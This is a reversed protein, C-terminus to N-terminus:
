GNQQLIHEAVRIGSQFAGEMYGVFAYCTHEGAFHLNRVGARLPPGLTTIQGPAPFSYGGLTWPDANWNQFDTKRLADRYGPQLTELASQYITNRAQDTETNSLKISAPGSTFAVLCETPDETSQGETGCWTYGIVDNSMGNPRRKSNEWFRNSMASFYKVAHGMQLPSDKPLPKLVEPMQEPFTINQWTSPPVTLVVDDASYTKGSADTVVMGSDRQQIKTIPTQLQIRSSGVAEALKYAFQQNGGACRYVESETWYRELGGGRIQALNGLYSQQTLPVTNDNTLMVGVLQKALPPADMADLKRSTSLQDWQLALPSKWPEDANIPRADETLIKFIKEVEPETEDLESQPILKGNLLHPENQLHEHDPVDLMELGFRKAYAVVWPHNSGLLEGGAEINKGIVFDRRSLVRGGVHDRAELVLVDSGASNLADACALGAFGAGIVIVKRGSNKSQYGWASPMAILGATLGASTSMFDRRSGMRTTVVRRTWQKIWHSM